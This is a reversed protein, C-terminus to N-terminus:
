TLAEPDRLHQEIAALFRAGEIGDTVRHDAALTATVVPRAALMGGKAWPREAIRGFGVMAVQPVYIVPYVEDVGQDGLSTVTLTGGAMESGRLKGARARQVLERLRVMLQDIPLLDAEAIAPAVLGGGRMSVAVALQVHDASRYEGDLYVGNFGPVKVAARATAALLLAAPLVRSTIAVQENRAQLWALPESLEIDLRLYYHPVERKSRSMLAGVAARLSSRPGPASRLAPAAKAPVPTERPPTMVPAGLREVDAGVVAGGPGTGTVSDLDLHRDEAMRRARPSVRRRRGAVVREVDRRTVSGGPGSGRVRALDAHEAAALRRVLPSLVREPLPAAPAGVPAPALVRSPAAEPEAASVPRPVAQPAPAAIVPGGATTALVALPTGVPVTAGVEVLLREIVGSEFIEVDLDAKETQVVAVIQGSTVADGPQVRWELVTGKDMDAGLSPM